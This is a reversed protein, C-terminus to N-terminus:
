GQGGDLRFEGLQVREEVTVRSSRGVGLRTNKGDSRHGCGWRWTCVGIARIPVAGVVVDPVTTKPFYEGLDVGWDLTRDRIWLRRKM